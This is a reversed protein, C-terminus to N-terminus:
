EIIAAAMIETYQGRGVERVAYIQWDHGEYAIQDTTKINANYRITFAAVREAVIHGQRLAERGSQEEVHAWLTTYVVYPANQEGFSDQPVPDRRTIQIRRDMKGSNMSNVPM